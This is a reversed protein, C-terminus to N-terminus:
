RKCNMSFDIKILHFIGKVADSKHQTIHLWVLDDKVVRRYVWLKIQTESEDWDSKGLNDNLNM